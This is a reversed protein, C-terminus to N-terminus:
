QDASAPSLLRLATLPPLRAQERGWAVCRESVFAQIDEPSGFDYPGLPDDTVSTLEHPLDFPAYRASRIVEGSPTVKVTRRNAVEVVRLDTLRVETIPHAAFLAAAHRFFASAPLAVSAIFGRRWTASKTARIDHIVAPVFADVIAEFHRRRQQWSKVKPEASACQFRIFEAEEREGNEELWDAYILRPADDAPAELIARLFADQETM